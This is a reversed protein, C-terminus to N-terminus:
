GQEVPLGRKAWGITGENVSRANHYGLSHLYLVGALSLNGRNCISLIPTDRDEPLRDLHEPLYLLPVNVAGPVHAKSYEDTERVDLVVAGQEVFEAAENIEITLNPNTRANRIMSDLLAERPSKALPPAVAGNLGPIHRSVSSAYKFISDPFIV